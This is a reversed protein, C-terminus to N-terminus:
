SDYGTIGDLVVLRHTSPYWIVMRTAFESCNHCPVSDTYQWLQGSSGGFADVARQLAPGGKSYSASFFPSVDITSAYVTGDAFSASREDERLLNVLSELSVDCGNVLFARAPQISAWTYGSAAQSNFQAVAAAIDGSAIPSLTAEPECSALAGTETLISDAKPHNPASQVQGCSLVCFALCLLNFQTTM